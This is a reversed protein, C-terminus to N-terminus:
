RRSDESRPPIAQTACLLTYRMAGVAYLREVAIGGLYAGLIARAPALPALRHLRAYKREVKALTELDRTRVGATLDEEVDITLGALAGRYDDLTYVRPCGWHRALLEADHRPVDGKAVDDVILLKGGPALASALNRITRALDPAHILTEIAIVADHRGDIPEDFSRRHFRADIGRKEAERRAVRTQVGSLTLGDYTGGVRAHWAFITGGFGCGADLVRPNAPLDAVDLLRENVAQVGGEGLPKHMTFGAFRDRYAIWNALQVYRSLWDYLHGIEASV